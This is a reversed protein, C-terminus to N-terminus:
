ESLELMQSMGFISIHRSDLLPSIEVITVHDVIIVSGRFELSSIKLAGGLGYGEHLLLGHKVLDGRAINKFDFLGVGFARVENTNTLRIVEEKLKSRVDWEIMGRTGHVLQTRCLNCPVNNNIESRQHLNGPDCQL